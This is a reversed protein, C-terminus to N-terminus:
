TADEEINFADLTAFGVISYFIQYSLFNLHALHATINATYVYNIKNINLIIGTLGSIKSVFCQLMSDYNRPNLVPLLM